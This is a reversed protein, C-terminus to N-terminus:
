KEDRLLSKHIGEKILSISRDKIEQEPPGEESKEHWGVITLIPPFSPYYLIKEYDYALLKQKTPTVYYL